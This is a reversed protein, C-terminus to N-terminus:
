GAGLGQAELRVVDGADLELVLSASAQRCSLSLHGNADIVLGVEGAPIGEFSASWTIKRSATAGKEDRSPAHLVFSSGPGDAGIAFLDPATASLQVNGFRDVWLVEAELMAGESGLVPPPLRVLSDPPVEEGLDALDAGAVLRAAAPAFVDRGDFTSLLMPDPGHGPGHSPGFGPGPGHGPGVAGARARDLSVMRVAGGLRGVALSLLGNDPGVFFSPGAGSRTEVAIARRWTAVGPDVVALVVGPGLHPVVRELALAGARVDFPPIEHTLDVMPVGPAMRQVVARMVGAFEDANGYDSLLFVCGRGGSM